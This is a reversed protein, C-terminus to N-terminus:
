PRKIGSDNSSNYGEVTIWAFSNVKNKYQQIRRTVGDHSKIKDIHGVYLAAKRLVPTPEISQNHNDWTRALIVANNKHQNIAKSFETDGAASAPFTPEFAITSANYKTLIKVLKAYPLRNTRLDGFKAISEDDIEVVVIRNDWDREGRLETLRNYAFDEVPVTAGLQILFGAVAAAIPGPLWRWSSRLSDPIQASLHTLRTLYNM